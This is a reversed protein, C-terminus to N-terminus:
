KKLVVYHHKKYIIIDINEGVTYINDTFYTSKIEKGNMDVVLYYRTSNVTNFESKIKIITGIEMYGNEFAEKRHIYYDIVRIAGLIINKAIFIMLISFIIILCITVVNLIMNDSALILLGVAGIIMIAIFILILMIIGDVIVNLNVMKRNSAIGGLIMLMLILIVKM